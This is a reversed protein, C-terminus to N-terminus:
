GLWKNARVFPLAKWQRGFGWTDGAATLAVVIVGIAYIVHYDVLPNSSGTAEGTSTHQAPPWEALWMMLMMLAGSVAAIRLGIGLVLALGIALLGLMFLGDAVPSGAWGRFLSQLPGVEVHGLFGNTPSGGNLWSREGPTSYGLGFAKDLFAWLFVLGLAARLVALPRAASTPSVAPATTTDHTRTPIHKTAM